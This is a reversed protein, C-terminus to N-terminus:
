GISSFCHQGGVGVMAGWSHLGEVLVSTRLSLLIRDVKKLLSMLPSDDVTSAVLLSEAPVMFSFDSPPDELDFVEHKSPGLRGLLLM